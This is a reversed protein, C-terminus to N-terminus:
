RFGANCRFHNDCTRHRNAYAPETVVLQGFFYFPIFLLQLSLILKKM